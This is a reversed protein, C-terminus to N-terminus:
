RLHAWTASAVTGRITRFASSLYPCELTSLPPGKIISGVVRVLRSVLDRAEDVDVSLVRAYPFPSRLCRGVLMGPLQIDAAFRTAGTVKEPGEVRGVPRGIQAFESM